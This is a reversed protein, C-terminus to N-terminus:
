PPEIVVEPPPRESSTLPCVPPVIARLPAIVSVPVPMLRLELVPVVILTVPPTVALAPALLANLAVPPPVTLTVPEAFVSAVVVPVASLTALVVMPAVPSVKRLTEEFPAALPMTSFLVPEAARQAHRASPRGADAAADQVGRGTAGVEDRGRLRIELLMANVFATVTSKGAAGVPRESPLLVASM